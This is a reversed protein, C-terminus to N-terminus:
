SSLRYRVFAIMFIVGNVVEEARAELGRSGFFRAILNSSVVTVNAVHHEVVSSRGRSVSYLILYFGYRALGKKSLFM